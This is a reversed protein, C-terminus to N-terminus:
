AAGEPVSLGAAVPLVSAPVSGADASALEVEGRLVTLGLERSLTSSFGPIEVAPGCLVARTVPADPQAALYFDLSHRVESAIRRIGESLTARAVQAHDLGMPEPPATLEQAGPGAFSAEFPSGPLPAPMRPLSPAVPAVEEGPQSAAGAETAAATSILLRRAEDLPIACRSAVESAIQEVGWTVVRTFECVSGRSIALNTLGGIALYLIQETPGADAPRLARIMGFAALDVGEPQLGALRAAEVIRAVMDKRAAVLLVHLRPGQPGESVGLTHYDLVVSELPMPIEDQAQFFVAQQIEAADTLPPLEMRRMMIRQNAIGIRVRRDLKSSKFLDSLADVLAPVDNAEGDRFVDLALTTFAAREVVVHGNVHSKAAVILGPEIALGVVNAERGGGRRKRRAKAQVAEVAAPEPLRTLTEAGGGDEALPTQALPAEPLSVEPLSVEPLSVEPLSVESFSAEALPAEPDAPKLEADASEPAPSPLASRKFSIPQRLRDFMGSGAVPLEADASEPAPSPPASRKFSIPQRLRDFMGSGAVPLEADASEPAPSPPASRKFSIPQRLRDFM